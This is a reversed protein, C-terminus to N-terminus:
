IDISFKVIETIEVGPERTDEKIFSIIPKLPIKVCPLRLNIIFDKDVIFHCECGIDILMPKFSVRNFLGEVIISDSDM